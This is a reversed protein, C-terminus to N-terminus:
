ESIDFHKWMVVADEGTDSYYKKRFGEPKFGLKTYLGQATLNSIKVELTIGIMELEEAEQILREVLMRGIGMRRYNEDVAINTIHGETVVHWMGAYGIVKGDKLAVFYIAMKNNTVENEFDQKTWFMPFTKREIQSVEDIHELGMRVIEIM